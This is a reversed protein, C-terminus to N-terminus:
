NTERPDVSVAEDDRSPWPAKKEAVLALPDFNIVNDSTAPQQNAPNQGVIEMFPTSSESIDHSAM